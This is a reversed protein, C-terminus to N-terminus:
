LLVAAMLPITVISALTTLFTSQAMAHIDGGYELCLLSGNIAVPMGMQVVAIGMVMPDAIDIAQLIGSLLMPMVILRLVALMWIRPTGLMERARQGALISGVLVLSLPITIGGLFDLSETIVAPARLRTLALILSLISAVVCPSFMQRWQFRVGGGLMLPGLTFSLLNFPLVLMVAYFLAEPGYLAVAVPYGIFGVNSFAMAYRWVGMQGPTGGLLRPVLLVFAFALAYYVLAVGMVSLIEAVSPLDDNTLVSAVIMAPMVVNLLLSSIRHNTGDDLYGLKNAAYGAAIAFLLVLMEEFTDIFSM